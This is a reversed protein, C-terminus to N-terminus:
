GPLVPVAKAGTLGPVERWYRDSAPDTDDIEFVARSDAVYTTTPTADVSVVPATLNRSPLGDLRSGDVAVQVIPIDTAARAVVVTDGTSWDLSLAASALGAAVAEPERLSYSGDARRVVVCVYVAGDVVLAARVGDRSLRLETIQGGLEAIESSEVDTLSVQGTAPDRVARRVVSGDIVAWVADRDPGWTPRTITGGEAVPFASGGYSGILLADPPQPAPRGTDSVAAVLTGDTSLAISRITDVTGFFGPVPTVANEDVRVLSGNRLAHLGVDTGPPLAPDFEALDATTWGDPYEPDLPAGDALLVYPGSVEAGALTWVIQAALLSRTARDLPGAGRLDIRVGGPGVGVGTPRGDAKTIAQATSLGNVVNRVAPELSLRPGAQLLSMLTDAMRDQSTAIWRQDPVLTTGTPDVFYLSRRQYAGLFQTRDLVVGSPLEDIRWQGDRLVLTLKTEFSGQEARYQGGTDLQGVRNARVTYEVSDDTRAEELVDIKDVVIALAGDNWRDAAEPTLFQRAAAHSDTPDTSAKVFDRVLLNPERGPTPEPLEEAVPGRAVTGIAQPASSTPLSACGSVLLTVIAGLVLLARRSGGATM